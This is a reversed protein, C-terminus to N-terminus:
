ALQGEQIGANPDHEFVQALGFRILGNEFIRATHRGEDLVQVLGLIGQDRFRNEHGTFFFADGDFRRQFPGVGIMLIHEAEGIIDRLAITSSM